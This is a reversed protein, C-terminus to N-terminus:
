RPEQPAIVHWRGAADRAIWGRRRAVKALDDLGQCLTRGDAEYFWGGYGQEGRTSRPAPIWLRVAQRAAAKETARGRASTPAVDRGPAGDGKRAAKAKPDDVSRVEYHRVHPRRGALRADDHRRWSDLRSGYSDPVGLRHVIGCHDTALLVHLDAMLVM